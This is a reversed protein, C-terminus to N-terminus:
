PQRASKFRELAMTGSQQYDNPFMNSLQSLRQAPSAHTNAHSPKNDDLRAIVRLYAAPSYGTNKLYIMAAVDAEFEDTENMGKDLLIAMAKDSLENFAVTSTTHQAMFLQSVLNAANNPSDYVKNLVHKENIHAMEHALIGALEAESELTDILGQSIFVFGGPTAFGLADPADLVSFYFHIDKRGSTRVLSQGVLNVYHILADNTSQQYKGLITAAVQQGLRVEYATQKNAFGPTHMGIMLAMIIVIAHGQRTM